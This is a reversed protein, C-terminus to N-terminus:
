LPAHIKTDVIRGKTLNSQGRTEMRGTRVSVKHFSGKSSLSLINDTNDTVYRPLHDVLNHEYLMSLLTFIDDMDKNARVQTVMDQYAVLEPLFMIDSETETANDSIMKKWTEATYVENLAAKIKKTDHKTFKSIVM